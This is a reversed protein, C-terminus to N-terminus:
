WWFSEQMLIPLSSLRKLTENMTLSLTVLCTDVFWLGKSSFASGFHYGLLSNQQQKKNNNEKHKQKNTTTKACQMSVPIFFDFSSQSYPDDAPLVTVPMQSDLEDRVTKVKRVCCDAFAGPLDCDCIPFATPLPLDYYLCHLLHLTTDTTPTVVGFNTVFASCSKAVIVRHQGLLSTIPSPKTCSTQLLGILLVTLALM